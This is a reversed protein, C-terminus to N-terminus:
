LAHPCLLTTHTALGEERNEQSPDPYSDLYHDCRLLVVVTCGPCAYM